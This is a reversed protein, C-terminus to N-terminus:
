EKYATAYQIMNAISSDDHTIIVGIRQSNIKLENDNDHGHGGWCQGFDMQVGEQNM